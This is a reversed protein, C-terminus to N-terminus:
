PEPTTAVTFTSSGPKPKPNIDLKNFTSEKFDEKFTSLYTPLGDSQVLTYARIIDRLNKPDELFTFLYPDGTKPNIRNLKTFNDQFSNKLEPTYPIGGIDTLSQEEAFLPELLKMRSDNVQIIQQNIEEQTYTPGALAQQRQQVLNMRDNAAERDKEIKSRTTLHQSIDEDTYVREGKDDKISEYKTKLFEDTSLAIIRDIENYNKIYEERKEVPTEIYGKVFPDEITPKNNELIVKQLAQLETIGEGFNGKEFEPDITAGNAKLDSWVNTYNSKFVNPDPVIPAPPPAEEVIPKDTEGLIVVPEQVDKDMLVAEIRDSIQDPTEVPPTQQQETM